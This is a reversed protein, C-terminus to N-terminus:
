MDWVATAMHYGAHVRCPMSLDEHPDVAPRECAAPRRLVSPIAEDLHAIVNHEDREVVPAFGGVTLGRTCGRMRAHMCARVCLHVRVCRSARVRVSARARVCRVCM